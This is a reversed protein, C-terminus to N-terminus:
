KQKRAQYYAEESIAHYAMAQKQFAKVSEAIRRSIDSDDALEQLMDESIKRLEAVVEDPLKKLQVGHIEVLSVLAENNRATYEDLMDQNV